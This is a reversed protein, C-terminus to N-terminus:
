AVSLPMLRQAAELRSYLQGCCDVWGYQRGRRRVLDREPPNGTAHRAARGQDQDAQVAPNHRLPVQRPTSPREVEVDLQRRAIEHQGHRGDVTPTAARRRPHPRHEPERRGCLRPSRRAPAVGIPSEAPRDSSEGLRERSGARDEDLLQAAAGTGGPVFVNGERRRRRQLRRDREFDQADVAAPRRAAAADIAKEASHEDRRVVPRRVLEEGPEAPRGCAARRSHVPRQSCEPKAIRVHVSAVLHLRVFRAEDALPRRSRVEPSQEALEVECRAALSQEGAPEAAAEHRGVSAEQQVEERVRSRAPQATRQGSVPDGDGVLRAPDSAGPVVGADDVPTAAREDGDHQGPIRTADSSRRLNEGSPDGPCREFPKRASGPTTEGFDGQLRGALRRL